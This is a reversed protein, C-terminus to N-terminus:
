YRLVHLEMYNYVGEVFFVRNGIFCSDKTYVNNCLVGDNRHSCTNNDYIDIHDGENEVWLGEGVDVCEGGEYLHYITHREHVVERVASPGGACGTVFLTMMLWKM